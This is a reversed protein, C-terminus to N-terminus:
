IAGGVVTDSVYYTSLLYTNLQVSGPVTGPYLSNKGLKTGGIKLWVVLVSHVRPLLHDFSHLIISQSDGTGLSYPRSKLELKEDTIM